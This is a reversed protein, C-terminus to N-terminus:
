IRTLDPCLYFNTPGPYGSIIHTIRRPGSHLIHCFRQRKGQGGEIPQSSETSSVVAGERKQRKASVTELHTNSKMSKCKSAKTTVPLVGGVTAPPSPTAMIPETTPPEPVITSPQVSTPIEALTPTHAPAPTAMSASANNYPAFTRSNVHATNILASLVHCLHPPSTLLTTLAFTNDSDHRSPGAFNFDAVDRSSIDHSTRLTSTLPPFGSSPFWDMQSSTPSSPSSSPLPSPPKYNPPMLLITCNFDLDIDDDQLDPPAFQFFDYTPQGLLTGSLESHLPSSESLLLSTDPTSTACIVTVYKQIICTVRGVYYGM